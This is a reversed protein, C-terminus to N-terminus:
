FAGIVAGDGILSLNQYTVANVNESIFRVSGDGLLFQAGGTHNSGFGHFLSNALTV